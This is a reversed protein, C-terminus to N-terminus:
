SVRLSAGLRSVDDLSELSRVLEIVEEVRVTTLVSGSMRRFKHEIEQDNMPNELTGKSNHVVAERRSGDHMTVTVRAGGYHHKRLSIQELDDDVELTTAEALRLIETDALTEDTWVSSPDVMTHPGRVISLATVFPLSYQAAMESEPRKSEHTVILRNSGGVRISRVDAPDINGEAVISAVADIALHSGGWSAYPKVERELMRFTTGLDKTLEDWRTDFDDRGYTRCYGMKGELVTAPGTLGKSALQASLVGNHAGFGAHLRKVMTGRADNSFEGLGAALSGAIGLANLMHEADLCMARGAAGVALWVGKHGSKHVGHRMRMTYGIRMGLEYGAVISTILESGPASRSETVAFAASVAYAGPHASARPSRDDMEIGHAAVGNVLAAGAPSTRLSQGWLSCKRAHGAEAMVEATMRPWPWRTAGIGVGVTDLLCQKATNIVATPRDEFRLGSLFEALIRTENM